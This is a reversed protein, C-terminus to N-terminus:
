YLNLTEIYLSQYQQVMKQLSFQSLVNERGRQGMVKAVEPDRILSLTARAVAEADGFPVLFGNDGQHVLERNGGVDTAVVPKGLAM